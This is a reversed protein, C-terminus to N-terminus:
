SGGIAAQISSVEKSGSAIAVRKMEDYCPSMESVSVRIIRQM